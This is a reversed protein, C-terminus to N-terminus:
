VFQSASISQQKAKELHKRDPPTSLPHHPPQHYTLLAEQHVLQHSQLYFRNMSNSIHLIFM